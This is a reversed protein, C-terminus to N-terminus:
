SCRVSIEGAFRTSTSSSTTPERAGCPEDGYPYPQQPQPLQHGRFERPEVGQGLMDWRCDDLAVPERPVPMISFFNAMPVSSLFYNEENIRGQMAQSGSSSSPGSNEIAEIMDMALNMAITGQARRALPKPMTKPEPEPNEACSGRSRSRSTTAAMEDEDQESDQEHTHAYGYHINTWEDVDSVEEMSSQLYTDRPVKTNPSEGEEEFARKKMRKNQYMAMLQMM